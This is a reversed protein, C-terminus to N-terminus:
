RVPERAPNPTAATTLKSTGDALRLTLKQRDPSIVIWKALRRRVQPCTPWTAPRTRASSDRAQGSSTSCRVAPVTIYARNILEHFADAHRGTAALARALSMHAYGCTAM